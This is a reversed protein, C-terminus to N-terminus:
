QCQVFCTGSCLVLIECVFSTSSVGGRGVEAESDGREDDGCGRVGKKDISGEAKAVRRNNCM